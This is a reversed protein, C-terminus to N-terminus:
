YLHMEVKLFPSQPRECGDINMKSKMM